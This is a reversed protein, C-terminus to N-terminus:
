PLELQRLNSGDANMVYINERQNNGEYYTACTAFLLNQGPVTFIQYVSEPLTAIKEIKTPDEKSMRYINHTSLPGNMEMGTRYYIYEDDFNLSAPYVYNLTLLAEKNSGDLDSRYLFGPFNLENVEETESFGGVYYIHNGDTMIHGANLVVEENYTEAELDVRILQNEGTYVNVDKHGYLYKGFIMNWHPIYNETITKPEGTGGEYVQLKRGVRTVTYLDGDYYWYHIVDNVVDKWKGNELVQISDVTNSNYNKHYLKGGYQVIGSFSDVVMCDSDDHECDEKFCFMRVNGTEIEYSLVFRNGCARFLIEDGYLLFNGAPLNKQMNGYQFYDEGVPVVAHAEAHNIVPVTEDIEQEQTLVTAETTETPQTQAADPTAAGCASLLLCLALLLGIVSHKM